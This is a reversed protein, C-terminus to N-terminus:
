CTTKSVQGLILHVPQTKEDLAKGWCGVVIERHWEKRPNSKDRQAECATKTAAVQGVQGSPRRLHGLPWTSRTALHSWKPPRTDAKRPFFVAGRRRPPSPGSPGSPGSPENGWTSDRQCSPGSFRNTMKFVWCNKELYLINKPNSLCSAMLLDHKKLASRYCGDKILVLM